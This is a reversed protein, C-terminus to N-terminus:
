NKPLRIVFRTFKGAETEFFMEGNHEQVIIDYSISLGLGTGQGAPKTTFFPNFLRDQIEAPIGNGNDEISVEVYNKHDRSTISLKPEFNGNLTQKKKHVEYFGNTIINLFVRSVDQPVIKIAKLDQAFNKEIKVNFASDQARMGHYALNIDEELMSNLETPQPEGKKGRSHQLMSRIISDARKGHENIKSANQSLNSLIDMINEAEDATLRAKLKQLEEGLESALERTLEAFNNVFNLPNKIEHAIGATLAGLSALKEQTILKQQTAKLDDLTANLHRYTDANDLAIATYTALNRLINLHYETYSNKRFSQATIVGIKKEKYTLPLYIMSEPNDGAAAKSLKKVYKSFERTYDNIFIEGQNRFCWTAPRNEDELSYSFSALTKGNEKTAPMEIENSQQNFIGIGFISADMLNNIHDYVTDIVNKISLSATIEKGMESLLEINKQRENEAQLVKSQAEATQARLEAERLQARDRERKILRRRQFRDAAFVLLGFFLAYFIYAYWTRYWPPMVNFKFLAAKSIHQYINKTRAQFEYDGPPLNTYIRTNEGTWASWKTDFGELRSQYRIEEPNDYSTASFEFRIAASSYPLTQVRDLSPTMYGGFLLSDEGIMVRRILSAYNEDYIKAIRPDYRILEKDTGFWVVGNEEPYILAAPNKALRLFLTKDSEYSGDPQLMMKVTEGGLNVWLNGHDDGTVGNYLVPREGLPVGKFLTDPEFRETSEDFRYLGQDTNFRLKDAHGLVYAGGEPLGFAGSFTRIEEPELTNGRFRLRIVDGASSSLWFVGPEPEAIGTIYDDIGAIKGELKWQGQDLVYTALGDVLAVFVRTGRRKSQHLYVPAYSLGISKKIIKANTGRIRYLGDNIAALLDDGISLIKFSQPIGQIGEVIRFMSSSKDLYYIGNSTALYLVGKHRVIDAPPGILGSSENFVSFPSPIEVYTISGEPGMWVSGERDIFLANINDSSLGTRRNIINSRRGERDIVIFGGNLTILGITGDSLIVGGYVSNAQLIADVETKFPSFRQGDFLFLGRNFTGILITRAFGTADVTYPLMVQMRDGIFQEGGPLLHLSDDTMAMLGAGIQQVYYTNNLWFAFGFQHEANWVKVKWGNDKETFRLIKERTQFYIGADTVKITWVRSIDRHQEDVFPLLSVFRLVGVSDPELYGFESVGGAYIRNNQDIALSRVMTKNPLEITQWSRGDFELIGVTNGFYMVGREDQIIDWTQSSGGTEKPYYNKLFPQGIESGNVATLFVSIIFIKLCTKM